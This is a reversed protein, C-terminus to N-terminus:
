DKFYFYGIGGMLVEGALAEQKLHIIYKEIFYKASAISINKKDAIYNILKGDESDLDPEFQVEYRPPYFTEEAENYYGSIRARTLNGLGPVSVSNHLELLESVYFGVDM